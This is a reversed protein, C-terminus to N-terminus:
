NALLLTGSPLITDTYLVPTFSYFLRIKALIDSDHILCCINKIPCYCLLTLTSQRLRNRESMVMVQGIDIGSAGRGPGLACVVLWFGRAM